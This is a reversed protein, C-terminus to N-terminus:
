NSVTRTAREISRQYLTAASKSVATELVQRNGKGALANELASRTAADDLGGTFVLRELDAIDPTECRVWAGVGIRATCDAQFQCVLCAYEGSSKKVRPGCKRCLYGVHNHDSRRLPKGCGGCETRFTSRKSTHRNRNPVNEIFEDKM